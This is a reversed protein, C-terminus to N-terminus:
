PEPLQPKRQVLGLLRQSLTREDVFINYLVQLIASHPPLPSKLRACCM